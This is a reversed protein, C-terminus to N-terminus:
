PWKWYCVTQKGSSIVLLIISQNTQCRSIPLIMIIRKFSNCWKWLFRDSSKCHSYRDIPEIMSHLPGYPIELHLFFWWCDVSTTFKPIELVNKLHLTNLCSWPSLENTIPTPLRSHSFIASISIGITFITSIVSLVITNMCFPVGGPGVFYM